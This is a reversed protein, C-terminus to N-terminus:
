RKSYSAGFIIFIICIAAFNYLINYPDGKSKAPKQTVKKPDLKKVDSLNMGTSNTTTNTMNTINVLGQSAVNGVVYPYCIEKTYYHTKHHKPTPPIPHKGYLGLDYAIADGQMKVESSEVIEATSTVYKLGYSTIDGKASNVWLFYFVLDKWLPTDISMLNKSVKYGFVELIGDIAGQTDLGNVEVYGASTLIYFNQYYENVDIGQSKFYDLAKKSADVGIQRIDNPTIQGAAPYSLTEGIVSEDPNLNNELMDKLNSQDYSMVTIMRSPFANDEMDLGNMNENDNSDVSFYASKDPAYWIFANDDSDESVGIVHKEADDLPLEPEDSNLNYDLLTQFIDQGVTLGAFDHEVHEGFSLDDKSLGDSGSKVDSSACDLSRLEELKMWLGVSGQGNVNNSYTPIIDGNKYFVMTLFEGKKIFFAINILDSEISSLKVLNGKRYTIYGNSADNIGNVINETAVNNIENEGVELIVFIEDASEFDYLENTSITIEQGFEYNNDNLDDDIAKSPIELSISKNEENNKLLEVDCGSIGNGSDEISPSVSVHSLKSEADSSLLDINSSSFTNKANVDESDLYIPIDGEIGDSLSDGDDSVSDFSEVDSSVEENNTVEIQANEHNLSLQLDVDSATVDSASVVGLLSLTLILLTVMVVGHKIM